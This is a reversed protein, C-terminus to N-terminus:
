KEELDTFTVLLSGELCDEADFNLDFKEYVELYVLGKLYEKQANEDGQKKLSQENLERFSELLEENESFAEVNIYLNDRVNEEKEKEFRPNTYQTWVPLTKTNLLLMKEKSEHECQPNIVQISNGDIIYKPPFEGYIPVSDKLLTEYMARLSILIVYQDISGRNIRDFAAKYHETSLEIKQNRKELEQVLSSYIEKEERLKLNDGLNDSIGTVGYSTGMWSGFFWEKKEVQKFGARTDKDGEKILTNNEKYKDNQKLLNILDDREKFVERTKDKFLRVQEQSIPKTLLEKGKEKEADTSLTKLTRKLNEAGRKFAHRDSFLDKIQEENELESLQHIINESKRSLICKIELDMPKLDDEKVESLAYVAQVTFNQLLWNQTSSFRASLFPSPDKDHLEESEWCGLGWSEGLLGQRPKAYTHILANIPNSEQPRAELYSKYADFAKKNKNDLLDHLIWSSLCFLMENQKESLHAQLDEETTNKDRPQYALARSVKIFTNFDQLRDIDYSIKLLRQYTKLISDVCNKIFRIGEKSQFNNWDKRYPLITVKEKIWTQWQKIISFHTEDGPLQTIIEYAKPTVQICSKFLEDDRYIFASNFAIDIPLYNIKRVIEPSAKLSAHALVSRLDRQLWGWSTSFHKPHQISCGRKLLEKVLGKYITTYEEVFFVSGKRIYNEFDDRLGATEEEILKQSEQDGNKAKESLEILIETLLEIRTKLFLSRRTLINIVQYLSCILALGLGLLMAVTIAGFEGRLLSLAIFIEAVCLPYICSAKLLTRTMDKPGSSRGSEIISILLAFIIIGYVSLVGIIIDKHVTNNPLLCLTDIITLASLILLIFATGPLTPRDIKLLDKAPYKSRSCLVLAVIATVAIIFFVALTEFSYKIFLPIDM